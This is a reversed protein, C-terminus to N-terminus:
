CAQPPFLLCRGIALDIEEGENYIVGAEGQVRLEIKGMMIRYDLVNGLYVARKITGRIPGAGLSVNEPRIALVAREGKNFDGIGCEVKHVGTGDKLLVTREDIVECEVFNILGIFDAVFRDAPQEYIKRPEDIQYALGENMVVTRDSMVMAEAQDHTVYIVTIGLRKQLDKIEFRMEERLKADLNSLPEDLLMVEPEMVLARALAVRQQQGGSLQHPYRSGLGELKVLSLAHDVTEKVEGRNMKIVRLPYAVNDFVSMHPWVAYSQFVMGLKRKEPPLFINKEGSSVVEDGFYIEGQDPREFGAIMRLTTTKGCGSPGLLSVFEGDRITVSLNRVAAVADFTKTVNVLRVESM